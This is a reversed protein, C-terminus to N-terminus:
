GGGGQLKVSRDPLIKKLMEWVMDPEFGKRIVYDAIKDRKVFVDEEDMEGSKRSILYKLTEQYEQKDIMQLGSRICSQTLGRVELERVIKIRGWRKLRFKGHVFLRAFREENLFGEQILSAIIEDAEDRPVGLESLKRRVDAHCREQYACYRWM